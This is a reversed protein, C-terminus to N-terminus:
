LHKLEGICQTCQLKESSRSQLPVNIDNIISFIRKIDPDSYESVNEKEVTKEEEIVNQKELDETEAIKLEQEIEPPVVVEEDGSLEDVTSHSFTRSSKRKVKAVISETVPEEKPITNKSLVNVLAEQLEQCREIVRQRETELAALQLDKARLRERILRRQHQYLIVHDAITDNELQLQVNIHEVREMSEQLEANMRMAQSFKKELEVRAWEDSGVVQSSNENITENSSQVERRQMEVVADVAESSLKPAVNEQTFQPESLKQVTVSRLQNIERQNNVIHEKLSDLETSLAKAKEDSSSLTATIKVFERQLCEYDEKLKLYDNSTTVSNESVPEEKMDSKKSEELGLLKESLAELEQKMRENEEKLTNSNPDDPTLLKQTLNSITERLQDNESSLINIRGVAQGLEVHFSNQNEDEANLMMIQNMEQNQNISRRLENRMEALDRQAKELENRLELERERYDDFGNSENSNEEKEIDSKQLSAVETGINSGMEELKRTLEKVLHEASQRGLECQLKEETLAVLRDETDLLLQKLEKNQAVARSVTAKENQLQDSLSLLETDDPVCEKFRQELDKYRIQADTVMNRMEMVVAEKESIEKRHAEEMEILKSEYKRSMKEEVAVVQRQVEERNIQTNKTATENNEAMLTSAENKARLEEMDQVLLNIQTQLETVKMELMYKSQEATELDAETRTAKDSLENCYKEYNKRSLELDQCVTEKESTLEQVLAEHLQKIEAEDVHASEVIPSQHSSLQKLYIEKMQLDKRTKVLQSELEEKERFLLKVRSQAESREHQVALLHAQAEATVKRQNDLEIQAAELLKSSDNSFKPLDPVCPEIKESSAKDFEVQLTELEEKYKRLEKNLDTKEEVMVAIVKQLQIVQKETALHSGNTTLQSYASHLQSYHTHLEQLQSKLSNYSSILNNRETIFSERENRFPSHEPNASHALESDSLIHVSGNSEFKSVAKEDELGTKVVESSIASSTSLVSNRGDEVSSVNSSQNNDAHKRSEYERLKKKALAIKDAKQTDELM